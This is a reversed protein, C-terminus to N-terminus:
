VFGGDLCDRLGDKAREYFAYRNVRSLFHLFHLPNDPSKKSTPRPTTSIIPHFTHPNPVKHFIHLTVHPSQHLHLNSSSLRNSLFTNTNALPPSTLHQKSVPTTPISSATSSQPSNTPKRLNPSHPKFNRRRNSSPTFYNVIAAQSTSSLPCSTAAYNLSSPRTPHKCASLSSLRTIASPKSSNTM